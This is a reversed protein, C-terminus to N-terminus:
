CIVSETKVLFSDGGKPLKQHVGPPATPKGSFGPLLRPLAADLSKEDIRPVGLYSDPPHRHM